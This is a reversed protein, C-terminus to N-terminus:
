KWLWGLLGKRKKEEQALQQLRAQEQEMNQIQEQFLARVEESCDCEERLQKLEKILLQNRSAEKELEDAAEADGGAFLRALGSRKEIREEARVTAQVSNNFNAAIERVQPGIGGALNEMALFAHVAERVRNQNQYIRRKEEAWDKMEQAMEQRREQIMEQLESYDRAQIREQIQASILMPQLVSDEEDPGDDIMEQGAGQGVEKIEPNEIGTGPEHIGKQQAFALASLLLVFLVLLVTKKM